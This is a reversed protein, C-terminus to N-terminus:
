EIKAEQIDQSEDPFQQFYGESGLESMLYELVAAKQEPTRAYHARPGFLGPYEGKALGDLLRIRKSRSLLNREPSIEHEKLYREVIARGEEYKPTQTPSRLLYATLVGFVVLGAFLWTTRKKQRNVSNANTNM